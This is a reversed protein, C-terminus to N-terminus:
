QKCMGEAWLGRKRTRAEEEAKMFQEKFQYPKEYTYEHGYGEEIMMRNVLVDNDLYVYRLLRGYKDENNQSDDNRLRVYKGEVIEKMRESAEKGFCQVPKRPDVVEPTDLGILRVTQIKGRDDIKITDGDVVKIVKVYGNKEETMMGAVSAQSASKAIQGSGDALRYSKTESTDPSAKVLGYFLAFIM